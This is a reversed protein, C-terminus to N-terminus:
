PALFQLISHQQCKENQNFTNVVISYLAASNQYEQGATINATQGSIYTELNRYVNPFM